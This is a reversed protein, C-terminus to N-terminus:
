RILQSTLNICSLGGHRVRGGADRRPVFEGRDGHRVQQNEAPTDETTALKDSLRSGLAADGCLKVVDGITRGHGM